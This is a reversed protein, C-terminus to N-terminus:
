HRAFVRHRGDTQVLLTEYPVARTGEMGPAGAPMSPVALGLAQPKEDLLKKIDSAPVHGEFVYKGIRATHCSSFKEPMGLKQRTASVDQVERVQVRFGNARLHEVWKGCCGCYQSKFVEVSPLPPSAWVSGTLTLLALLISRSHKM